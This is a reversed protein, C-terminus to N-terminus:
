ETAPGFRQTLYELAALYALAATAASVVVPQTQENLVPTLGHPTVLFLRAAHSDHEATLDIRIDCDGFRHQYQAMRLDSVTPPRRDSAAQSSPRLTSALIIKTWVGPWIYTRKERFFNSVSTVRPRRQRAARRPEDRAAEWGRVRLRTEPLLKPPLRKTQEPWGLSSGAPTVRSSPWPGSAMMSLRSCCEPHDFPEAIRVLPM